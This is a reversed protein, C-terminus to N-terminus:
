PHLFHKVECKGDIKSLDQWPTFLINNDHKSWLNQPKDVILNGYPYGEIADGDLIIIVIKIENGFGDWITQLNEIYKGQSDKTCKDLFWVFRMKKELGM